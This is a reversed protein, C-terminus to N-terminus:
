SAVPWIIRTQYGAPDAVTSPNTVYHERALNQPMLSQEPIAAELAGYLAFLEEYPGGHLHEAALNAVL